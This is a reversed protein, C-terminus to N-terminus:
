DDEDGGQTKEGMPKLLTLLNGTHGARRAYDIPTLKWVDLLDKRAGRSLLFQVSELCGGHAAWHM